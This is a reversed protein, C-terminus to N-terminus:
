NWFSPSTSSMASLKRTLMYPGGPGGAEGEPQIAASWTINVPSCQTLSGNSGVEVSLSHNVGPPLEEARKLLPASPLASATAALLALPLAQHILM